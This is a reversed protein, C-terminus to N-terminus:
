ILCVRVIALSPGPRLSAPARGGSGPRRRVGEGGPSRLRSWMLARARTSAVVTGLAATLAEDFPVGPAATVVLDDASYAALVGLVAGPCALFHENVPVQHGDLVVM